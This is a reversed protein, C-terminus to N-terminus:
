PAIAGGKKLARRERFKTLIDGALGLAAEDTLKTVRMAEHSEFEILEIAMNENLRVILSVTAEREINRDFRESKESNM